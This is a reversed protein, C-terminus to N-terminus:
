GKIKVQAGQVYTTASGKVTMKGKSLLEVKGGELRVEKTGTTSLKKQASVDIDKASIEFEKQTIMSTTKSNMSFETGASLDVMKSASGSINKAAISCDYGASINLNGGIDFGTNDGVSASLNTGVSLSMNNGITTDINNGVSESLNEGIELKKHRGVKVEMDEDVNIKMNKCNLTMTEPATITISSAKTDLYIKNGSKDVITISEAGDTDDFLIMHGTRTKISKFNNDPDFHEPKAGGHYNGGIMYPNDPNGHVFGVIVEDGIEPVFYVGRDSFAHNTAYHMWPTTGEKQWKLQVRVRGQSEPDNNETVVGMQADAWPRKVTPNVPPVNVSLPIAKFENTYDNSGEIYHRVEIVRFKGIFAKENSGGKRAHATIKAGVTLGPHSSAGNFFATNSLLTGRKSEALKKITSDNLSSEWVETLPENSFLDDAASLGKEGYNDLWGPKFGSSAYEVTRNEQTNYAHLNSKSPRINVGFDFYELDSGLILDINDPNPLKGFIVSQGDYFFWEGYQNAMRSLYEFNTENYQVVYPISDSHQPSVTPNLKNGPYQGIIDNAIGSLDMEEFSRAVPGDELLYTPSYGKFVIFSDGAYTRDMSVSTIIGKFILTSSDAQKVRQIEITIDKGINELSNDISYGDKGELKDSAVHVLFRHHGYFSQRLDLKRPSVQQSGVKINVSATAL